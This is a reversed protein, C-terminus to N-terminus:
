NRIEICPVFFDPNLYLLDELTYTNQQILWHFSRTIKHEKDPFDRFPYDYNFNTDRMFYEEVSKLPKDVSTYIGMCMKFNTCCYVDEMIEDSGTPTSYDDAEYSLYADIDYAEYYKKGSALLTDIDNKVNSLLKFLEDEKKIIADNLELLKSINDKSWEFTKNSNWQLYREEVRKEMELSKDSIYM